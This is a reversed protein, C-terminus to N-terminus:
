HHVTPWINGRNAIELAEAATGKVVLFQWSHAPKPATFDIFEVVKDKEAVRAALHVSRVQKIAYWGDGLGIIGNPLPLFLEGATLQLDALKVTRLETELLGPSYAFEDAFRPLTLATQGYFTDPQGVAWNVSLRYRNPGVSTWVVKVDRDSTVTVAFPADVIKEALSEPPGAQTFEVKGNALDVMVHPKGVATLIQQRLIASKALIEANGELGFLIEGEWPNIGSCDSVQVRFVHRWLAALATTWGPGEKPHDKAVADVMRQLAAVQMRAAMNGTRVNNDAEVGIALIGANGMWKHVSNTSPAQWTGDVLVPAPKAAIGKAQVHRVYDGIRTIFYGAKELGILEDEYEKVRVPDTPADAAFYPNLPGAATKAVARLEGDDFFHWAVDVGSTKDVGGAGVVMLGGESTYLPWWKGDDNKHQYKWLNKPFVGVKWGGAVLMNQWGPGAQGEQNFVVTGLPICSNAFAQKTLAHSRQLDERPFALFFQAAWHFSIPEIQGNDVLKKFLELTKPHRQAMVEIAMGQLEIDVGWTPHRAFVELIPRLTQDIIYDQTKADDYGKNIAKNLFLIKAGDAKTYELGGIVYEINYHFLGLAFKTRKVDVPQKESFWEFECPKAATDAPWGTDAAAVQAPADAVTASDAVASTDAAIAAAPKTATQACAVTALLAAM